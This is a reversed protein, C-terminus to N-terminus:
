KLECEADVCERCRLSSTSPFNQKCTPCISQEENMVCEFRTCYNDVDYFQCKRDCLKDDTEEVEIESVIYTRTM